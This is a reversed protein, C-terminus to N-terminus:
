LAVRLLLCMCHRCAPAACWKCEGLQAQQTLHFDESAGNARRSSLKWQLCEVEDPDSSRIAFETLVEYGRADWPEQPHTCLCAPSTCLCAPLHPALAQLASCLQTHLM